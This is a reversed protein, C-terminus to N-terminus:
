KPGDGSKKSSGIYKNPAVRGSGFEAPDDMFFYEENEREGPLQEIDRLVKRQRQMKLVVQCHLDEINFDERTANTTRLM